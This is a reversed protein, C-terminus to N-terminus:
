PELDPTVQVEPVARETGQVAVAPLSVLVPKFGPPLGLLLLAALGLVSATFGLTGVWAVSNVFFSWRRSKRKAVIWPPLTPPGSTTPAESLPVEIGADDVASAARAAHVTGSAALSAAEPAAADALHESLQAGIGSGLEVRPQIPSKLTTVAPVDQTEPLPPPGPMPSGPVPSGSVVGVGFVEFEDTHDDVLAALADEPTRDVDALADGLSARQVPRAPVVIPQGRRSGLIRDLVTVRSARDRTKAMTNYITHYSTGDSPPLGAVDCSRGFVPWNLVRVVGPGGMLLVSLEAGARGALSRM